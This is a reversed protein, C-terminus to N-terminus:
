EASFSFFFVIHLSCMHEKLSFVLWLTFFMCIWICTFNIAYTRDRNKLFFFFRVSIETRNLTYLYFIHTGWRPILCMSLTNLSLILAFVYFFPYFFACCFNNDDTTCTFDSVCENNIISFEPPSSSSLMTAICKTTNKKQVTREMHIDHMSHALHLIHFWTVSTRIGLM